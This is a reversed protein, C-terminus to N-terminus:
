GRVGQGPVAGPAPTFDIVTRAQKEKTMHLRSAVGILMGNLAKQGDTTAAILIQESQRTIDGNIVALQSANNRDFGLAAGLFAILNPFSTKAKALPYVSGKKTGPPVSPNNSQLVELELVISPGNAFTQKLIVDNIRCVCSCPGKDTDIDFYNGKAYTQTGALGAFPSAPPAQPAYGQPPQGYQMPQPQAPAQPPTFGQFPAPAQPAAQPAPQPAQFGPAPAFGNGNGGFNFNAM